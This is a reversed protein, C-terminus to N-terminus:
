FVSPKTTKLQWMRSAFNQQYRRTIPLNWNLNREFCWQMGRTFLFKVAAFFEFSEDLIKTSLFADHFFYDTQLTFQSVKWHTRPFIFTRAAVTLSETIRDEHIHLKFALESSTKRLNKKQFRSKSKKTFTIFFLKHSPWPQVPFLKSPTCDNHKDDWAMIADLLLSIDISTIFAFSSRSPHKREM